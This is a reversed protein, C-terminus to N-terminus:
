ESGGDMRAGCSYCFKEHSMALNMEPAVSLTYGCESCKYILRGDTDRGRYEWRGHKVPEAEITPLGDIFAMTDSVIDCCYEGLGLIDADKYPVSCSGCFHGMVSQKLDERSIMRM